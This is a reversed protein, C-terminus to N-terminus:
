FGLMSPMPTRIVEISETVGIGKHIRHTTTPNLPTLLRSASKLRNATTLLTSRGCNALLANRDPCAICIRRLRRASHHTGHTRSSSPIQYKSRVEPSLAAQSTMIPRLGSWESCMMPSTPTGLLATYNFSVFFRIKIQSDQNLWDYRPSRDSYQLYLVQSPRQRAWIVM